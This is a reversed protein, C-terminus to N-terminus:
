HGGHDGDDKKAADGQDDKAKADGDTGHSDGHGADTAGHSDGHGADTAGHGDGAPAHGDTAPAHTDGSKGHNDGHHAKKTISEPKHVYLQSIPAPEIYLDNQRGAYDIFLAALLTALLIIPAWIFGWTELKEHKGHMFLTIVLSAKVTAIVMAVVDNLFANGWHIRSAAVTVITLVVLALFTGLYVKFSQIHGMEGAHDDHHDHAM